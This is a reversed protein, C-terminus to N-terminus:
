IEPNFDAFDQYLIQDLPFDHPELPLQEVKQFPYFIGVKLAEPHQILFNDYYGGGYGLRNGEDDFALGPVIILDYTGQYEQSNAPFTTGFVGKEIQDLSKLLLHKLQRGPLTKPTVVRLNATLMQRILPRIDIETDMPLYCHVTQMNTEEINQWLQQCIWADYAKKQEIDVAGRLQRMQIRLAKKRATSDM